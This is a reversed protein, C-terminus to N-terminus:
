HITGRVEENSLTAIVREIQRWHCFRVVNGADRSQEARAAAELGADDNSRRDIQAANLSHEGALKLKSQEGLAEVLAERDGVPELGEVAVSYRLESAADLVPAAAEAAAAEPEIPPATADLEPWDVGIDPMPALPASPDLEASGAQSQVPATQANAPFACVLGAAAACILRAAARADGRGEM